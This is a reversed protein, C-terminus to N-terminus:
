FLLAPLNPPPPPLASSSLTSPLILFSRLLKQAGPTQQSGPVSCMGGLGALVQHLSCFSRCLYYPLDNSATLRQSWTPEATLTVAQPPPRLPTQLACIYMSRSFPLHLNFLFAGLM